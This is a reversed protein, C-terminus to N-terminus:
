VMFLSLSRSFHFKIWKIIRVVRHLSVIAKEISMNKKEKAVDVRLSLICAIINFLLEVDVIM